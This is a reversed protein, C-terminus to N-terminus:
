GGFAFATTLILVPALPLVLPWALAMGSRGRKAATRFLAWGAGWFGPYGWVSFAMAYRVMEDLPGRIPADFVFIAVFAAVPWVLLGLALVVFLAQMVRYGRPKPLLPPLANM